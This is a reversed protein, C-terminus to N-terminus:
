KWLLQHVAAHFCASLFSFFFLSLKVLFFFFVEPLYNPQERKNQTCKLMRAREPKVRASM